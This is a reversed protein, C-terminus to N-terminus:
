FALTIDSTSIDPIKEVPGHLGALVITRGASRISFNAPPGSLKSSRLFYLFPSLLTKNQTSVLMRYKVLAAQFTATSRQSSRVSPYDCAEASNSYLRCLASLLSSYPLATLLTCLASHLIRHVWSLIGAQVPCSAALALFCEPMIRRGFLHWLLRM